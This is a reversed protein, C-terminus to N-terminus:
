RKYTMFYIFDYTKTITYKLSKRGEFIGNKKGKYFDFLRSYFPM